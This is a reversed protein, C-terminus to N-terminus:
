LRKVLDSMMYFSGTVITLNKKHFYNFINETKSFEKYLIEFNKNIKDYIKQTPVSLANDFHNLFVEDGRRFLTNVVKEYEKTSLCGFIWVRHEKPFYFDLNRRLMLAADENHSGDVILNFKKYYQFRAPIFVTKLATNISKETINLGKKTLIEAIKLVLSLNQSQHLGWLSFEHKEGDFVAYNIGNEFLIDVKKDALVVESQKECAVQLITKIGRNDTNVACDVNEKIIGAKEFAIKEITDGLRDKHDISVSTIVSFLPKKVVNTADFRGGLGTELVVFDVNEEYFYKLAAATLIEFETLDIDNRKALDEVTTVNRTFDDDSIDKGDVKFRENYKFIHPSTYLGVKYGSQKLIEATLTCVSGKGNTGAVHIIKLKEQPNGLLELIASIRELGLNIRFKGSSHLYKETKEYKQFTM